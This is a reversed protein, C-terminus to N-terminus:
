RKEPKQSREKQSQKEDVSLRHKAVASFAREFDTPDNSTEHEQAAERIRKGREEDTIQHKKAPMESAGM